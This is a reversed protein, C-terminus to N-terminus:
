FKGFEIKKVLDKFNKKFNDQSFNKANQCCNEPKYIEPKFKKIEKILAEATQPYFFTGTIGQKVTELVGGAGFAIVPRGCAQAELPVLGFDEDTPFIVARCNQYYSLLQKDTLQGLFDINSNAQRKLSGLQSGVGVIKLPLGLNNFAQIVLDIKKYPVLRSVVLFYDGKKSKGPHFKKLDVPPYILDSDRHYYKKIRKRVNESIAAYRDPRQAVVKDWNLLYNLIPSALLKLFKNKFYQDHSSFLYRTPTLCYCLHYTSPKTIIGKGQASTVSIVLDFDSFDFSEFALPMLWPYFEHYVNALPLKNLFSPIIKFDKAWSAKDSNFVSTFLPAEPYIEHLTQLVREAGGFKDVWDYVLAVKM